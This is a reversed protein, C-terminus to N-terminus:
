MDLNVRLIFPKGDIEKFVGYIHKSVRLLPSTKQLCDIHPTM